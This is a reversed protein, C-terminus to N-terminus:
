RASKKRNMIEEEAETVVFHNIDIGLLVLFLM